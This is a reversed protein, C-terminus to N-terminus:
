SIRRRIFWLAILMASLLAMAGYTISANREADKTFDNQMKAVFGGDYFQAADQPMARQAIKEPIVLAQAVHGSELAPIPEVAEDARASAVYEPVTGGVNMAGSAFIPDNPVTFEHEYSVTAPSAHSVVRYKYSAGPTLGSLLVSHNLVKTTDEVTAFPYGYNPLSLNLTYPGGSSLGYLVQSTAPYDTTWTININGGATSVAAAENRIQLGRPESGTSTNTQAGQYGVLLDFGTTLTQYANDDDPGTTFLVCLDYQKTEEPAITDLQVEGDAYFASLFKKYLSTAGRMVELELRSALCASSSTTCGSENIAEIVVPQVENTLNTVRVYRCMRDLPKFDDNAFLPTTEFEVDLRPIQASAAAPALVFLTLTFFFTTISHKM